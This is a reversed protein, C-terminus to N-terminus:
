IQRRLSKVILYAQVWGAAELLVLGTTTSAASTGSITTTGGGAIGTGGNTTASETTAGYTAGNTTTAGNMIGSNMASVNPTDGKFFGYVSGPLPSIKQGTSNKKWM